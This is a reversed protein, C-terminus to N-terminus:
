CALLSDVLSDDLRGPALKQLARLSLRRVVPNAVAKEPLGTQL